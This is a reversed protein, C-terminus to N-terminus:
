TNNHLTSSQGADTPGTQSFDPPSEDFSEGNAEAEMRRQNWESWARHVQTTVQETVQTTVRETVQETVRETVQTTVQETVRETAEAVRREIRAEERRKLWAELSAAIVMISRATEILTIATTASGAGILGIGKAIALATEAPSDTTRLAIEYWCLLTIGAINQIAFLTFYATKWRSLISWVSERADETQRERNDM